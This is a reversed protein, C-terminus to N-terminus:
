LAFRLDASVRACERLARPGREVLRERGVQHGQPLAQASRQGAAHGQPGDRRFRRSGNETAPQEKATAWAIAGDQNFVIEEHVVLDDFIQAWFRAAHDDAVTGPLLGAHVMELLDEDELNEDAAVLTFLAKGESERRKNIAQAHEWYSSSRRMHLEVGELDASADIAPAAPGTVVIENVGTVLPDAFDILAQREPTITLSAAAIDARGELLAPLLADRAVPMVVVSLNRAKAGLAQRLHEQFAQTLEYTVGRPSVGDLFYNMLSQSTAVRVMGRAVMGDLDGQWPAQASALIAEDPDLADETPTQARSGAAVLLIGALLVLCRIGLIAM